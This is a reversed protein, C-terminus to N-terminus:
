IIFNNLQSVNESATKRVERLKAEFQSVAEKDLVIFTLPKNDNTM